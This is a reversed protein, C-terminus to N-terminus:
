STKINSPDALPDMDTYKGFVMKACLRSGGKCQKFYGCERCVNPVLKLERFNKAFRSNWADLISDKFINGVPTEIAYDIQIEGQPNIVLKSHGEIYKPGEALFEMSKEPDYSCFPVANDVTYVTKYTEKIKILKDILNKVDERTTPNPNQTTPTQRLLFWYDPDLSKVFAFIMELDRINEKTAVTCTRVQTKSGRLMQITKKKKEFAGKIGIIRDTKDESYSLVSIIVADVNKKIEKVNERTILTCNTNLRVELGAEKAYEMLEFIDKRLLPEGGTFRVAKVGSEAIKDVIYRLQATDMQPINDRGNKAFTAKNVCFECSGNCLPTAEIKVEEPRDMLM